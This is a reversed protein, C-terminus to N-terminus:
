YLCYGVAVTGVPSESRNGIGDFAQIYYQLTATAGNSPPDLSLRLEQDRVTAVYVATEAQNMPLAQWAGKRTGEVVRYTLKV